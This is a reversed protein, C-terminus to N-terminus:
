TNLDGYANCVLIMACREDELRVVQRMSLYAFTVMWRTLLTNTEWYVVDTDQNCHTKGIQAKEQVPKHQM